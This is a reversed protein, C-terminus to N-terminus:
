SFLANVFADAEFVKLDAVQEGVGIFRIPMKLSEAINFIIGGKATSDLKTLVIGTCQIAEQFKQAQVLANQGITADLVLLIEHPAQSDCQSIVRKIKKLEEM